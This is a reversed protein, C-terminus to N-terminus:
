KEEALNVNLVKQEGQHIYDKIMNSAFLWQIATYATDFKENFLRREPIECLMILGFLLMVAIVVCVFFGVIEKIM